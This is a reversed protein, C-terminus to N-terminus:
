PLHFLCLHQNTLLRPTLGRSMLRFVQFFMEVPSMAVCKKSALLSLFKSPFPEILGELAGFVRWIPLKSPLFKKQMLKEINTPENIPENQSFFGNEESFFSPDYFASVGTNVSTEETTA